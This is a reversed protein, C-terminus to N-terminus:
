KAVKKKKYVYIGGFSSVALLGIISSVFGVRNEYWKIFINKEAIDFVLNLTTENGALDYAQAEIQYNAPESFNMIVSGEDVNDLYDVGNVTLSQMLDQDDLLSLDISVNEYYRAQDEVGDVIFEPATMDIIFEVTLQKVNGAQDVVEFYLVHKGETAIPQGLEYPEGNLTLAIIQYDTMDEIFFEPIVVDNFYQNSMPEAFRIVPATKDITFVITRETVNDALDAISAKLVYDQEDVLNTGSEFPQDNLTVTSAEEDLHQDSYEVVPTISENFYGEIIGSITLEPRTTDVTFSLELTTTNGAKDSATVLYDYQMEESATPINGAVNAGDNLRVVDITDEDPQDLEFVPTFVRNIYAGDEIVEGDVGMRPTIEPATKDITFSLEIRDEHGAKDTANVVMKYDGEETFTHSLTAVSEQYAKANVSFNGVPYNVGDRTVSVTQQDLNVDRVRITVPRDVNYYEEHEVGDVEIVPSVTDIVFSKNVPTARNGAADTAQMSITYAGDQDFRHTLRSEFARNRWSAGHDGEVIDTFPEGNRRIEFNVNNTSFQREKVLFEVNRAAPYYRGDSIQDARLVPATKDITFRITQHESSNGARDTASLRLEFVGEEGTRFMHNWEARRDNFSLAPVDRYREMRGSRNNLKYVALDTRNPDLNDDVVAVSVSRNKNYHQDHKVGTISLAPAIQDVTFTQSVTKAQNGAADVADVVVRYTGDQDFDLTLKSSRGSNKWNDLQDHHYRVDNGDRDRRYVKISVENTEYNNEIVEIQQSIPQNHYRKLQNLKIVPKTNDVVFRLSDETSRGAYDELYVTLTYDGDHHYFDDNLIFQYSHDATQEWTGIAEDAWQHKEGDPTKQTVTVTREKIHRENIEIPVWQNIGQQDIAERTKYQHDLAKGLKIVPDTKDLTFQLSEASRNGARDISEISVQYNGEKTFQYALSATSERFLRHRINFDGVPYPEGDRTVEIRNIDFDRDSINIEMLRDDAYHIGDEVGSVTITPFTSDITFSTEAVEAQNGAADEAELKITYHGDAFTQFTASSQEAQRFWHHGIRNLVADTIDVGNHSVSLQVQNSLYHHEFVSLSIEQNESYFAGDEVGAIAVTPAVKDITFRVQKTESRNGAQDTGELTVRYLGENAFVETLALQDDTLIPANETQYSDFKRTLDNWKEVTLATQDHDLLPSNISFTVERPNSYHQHDEIGIVSLDPASRNITFTQVVSEAENGAQDVASASIRYTGDQEFLYDLRTQRDTSEWDPFADSYDTFHGTEDQKEIVISVDNTQYYDEIIAIEAKVQQNTYRALESIEILPATDDVVFALSETQSHGALDDAEVEILYHGDEQWIDQELEFSVQSLQDQDQVWQGVQEQNFQTQEGDVTTHTVTLQKNKLHPEDITVSCLQDFGTAEILGRNIHQDPAIPSEIVLNPAESDILLEHTYVTERGFQNVAVINIEYYGQDFQETVTAQLDQHSLAENTLLTEKEGTEPNQKLIEFVTQEMDLSFDALTFTVDVPELYIAELDDGYADMVRVTPQDFDVVVSRNLAQHHGADDKATVEIHYVGSQNMEFDLLIRDDEQETSLEVQDRGNFYEREISWKTEDHDLNQDAIVVQVDGLAQESRDPISEGQQDVFQIVPATTDVTFTLPDLQHVKGAGADEVTAEIHYDGDPFPESLTATTVDLEVEETLLYAEGDLTVDLSVEAIPAHNDILLEIDDSPLDAGSEFSQDDALLNLTPGQSNVYFTIEAQSVHEAKDSANVEIQYIGSTDTPIGTFFGTGQQEWTTQYDDGNVKIELLEESTYLDDVEIEVTPYDSGTFWSPDPYYIQQDEVGRIAITPAETDKVINFAIPNQDSPIGWDNDQNIHLELELWGDHEPLTYSVHFRGQFVEEEILEFEDSALSDGQYTATLTFPQAQEVNQDYYHSFDLVFSVQDESTVWESAFPFTESADWQEGQYDVTLQLESSSFAASSFMILFLLIIAIVPFVFFKKKRRYLEAM